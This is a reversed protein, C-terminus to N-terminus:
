KKEEVYRWCRVYRDGIRVQPPLERWCREEAYPCRNAFRCGAILFEKIEMASLKIPRVRKKIDPDPELLSDLLLKTYPHLPETYVKEISGYEVLTGRYLVGIEDGVYYATALDHTVYIITIGLKSEIDKLLNLVNIRLSADLMSVPEDALLLKPNAILARVISIRQLEGGSFEHPYKGRVKELSLGAFRLTKEVVEDLKRKDNIGLFNRATDYLYSDVRRLPNFTEYPDQFVAQVERRYWQRLKRPLRHVDYGKYLVNGEDPREMGLIIRLLTSKGSGTEGALVFIRPPNLRVTFTVRDLARFKSLGLLGYGYLKTVNVIELAERETKDSM